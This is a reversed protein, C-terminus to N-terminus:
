FAFHLSVQQVDSDEFEYTTWEIEFRIGTSFGLGLGYATGSDSDSGADQEVRVDVLGARAIVYIPGASRISGFLGAHQYSYDGGPGDADTLSRTIDGEIALDVALLDVFEYGLQLTGTSIPDFGSADLDVVGLKLGGIIEGAKVTNPLLLISCIILVIEIPNRARIM